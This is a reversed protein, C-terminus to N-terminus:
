YANVVTFAAPAPRRQQTFVSQDDYSEVSGADIGNAKKCAHECLRCGICETLDVLVGKTEASLAPGHGATEGSALVQRAGVAGTAAATMFGAYKLIDRRAPQQQM